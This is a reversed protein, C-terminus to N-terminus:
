DVDTSPWTPYEFSHLQLRGLSSGAKKGDRDRKERTKAKKPHPSQKPHHVYGNEVREVKKKKKAIIVDKANMFSQASHILEAM